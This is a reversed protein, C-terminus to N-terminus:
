LYIKIMKLKIGLPDDSSKVLLAKFLGRSLLSSVLFDFINLDIGVM